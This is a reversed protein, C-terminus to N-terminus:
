RSTIQMKAMGQGEPPRLFARPLVTACENEADFIQIAVPATGFKSVGDDFIEAPKPQAPIFARVDASGERRINL